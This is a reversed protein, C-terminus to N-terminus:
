WSPLNMQHVRNPAAVAQIRKLADIHGQLVNMMAKRDANGQAAIVSAQVDNEFQRIATLKPAKDKGFLGLM